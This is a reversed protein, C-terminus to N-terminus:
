RRRARAGSQLARDLWYLGQVARAQLVAVGTPVGDTALQANVDALLQEASVPPTYAVAGAEAAFAAVKPDYVLASFSRKAAAAFILGHLRASVVHAAGAVTSLAASPTDARWRALEPVAEQLRKLPVDDQAPQIAMGALPTGKARLARALAVLADTIEPYGGRPILLVPPAAGHKTSGPVASSSRASSPVASSAPEDLLFAADAVLEARVELSALLRQSASDRVAVPIGSLVRRVAREGALSLPGVSQGYVVARKGLVKALQLVGLYYRLSRASTKDQLLGGGGSVLADHRLLAPVFGQYRSVAHVGHLARTKAPNASLVTVRHGCNQLGAALGSLIAEDGLNGFGYYGSLLVKM